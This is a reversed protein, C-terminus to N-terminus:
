TVGDTTVCNSGLCDTKALWQAAAEASPVSYVSEPSQNMLNVLLWDLAEALLRKYNYLVLYAGWAM